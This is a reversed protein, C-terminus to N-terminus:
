SGLSVVVQVKSKCMILDHEKFGHYIQSGAPMFYVIEECTKNVQSNPPMVYYKIVSEVPFMSNWKGKVETNREAKGGDPFM